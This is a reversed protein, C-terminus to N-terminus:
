KRARKPWNRQYNRSMPHVLLALLAIDFLFSIGGQWLWRPSDVLVYAVRALLPIAAAVVGLKYGWRQENAIGYAGALKGAAVVMTYSSLSRGFIMGAVISLGGQFYMLLQALYLTQPQYRNVWVKNNM